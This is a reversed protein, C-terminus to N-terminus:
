CHRKGVELGGGLCSGQIAAVVPKPNKEISDMIRQGDLSIQTAEEVTKCDALM